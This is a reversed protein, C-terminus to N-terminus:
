TPTPYSAPVDVCAPEMPQRGVGESRASDGPFRPKVRTLAGAVARDCQLVVAFESPSTLM